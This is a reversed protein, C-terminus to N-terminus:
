LRVTEWLSCESLTMIHRYQELMKSAKAGTLKVAGGSSSASLSKTVPNPHCPYSPTCWSALCDSKLECTLWWITNGRLWTKERLTMILSGALGIRRCQFNESAKRRGTEMARLPGLHSTLLCDPHHDGWTGPFVTATVTMAEARQISFTEPQPSSFARGTFEEYVFKIIKQM